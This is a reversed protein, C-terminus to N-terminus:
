LNESDKEVLIKRDNYCINEFHIRMSALYWLSFYIKCETLSKLLYNCLVCFYCYKLRTHSASGSFSSLNNPVSGTWRVSAPYLAIAVHSASSSSVDWTTWTLLRVEPGTAEPLPLPPDLGTGLSLEVASVWTSAWLFELQASLPPWM